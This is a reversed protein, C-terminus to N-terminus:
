EQSHVPKMLNAECLVGELSTGSAMRIYFARMLQLKKARTEQLLKENNMLKARLETLEKSEFLTEEVELQIGALFMDVKARLSSVADWAQRYSGAATRAQARLPATEARVKRVDELKKADYDAFAQIEAPSFTKTSLEFNRYAEQIPWEPRILKPIASYLDPDYHPRLVEMLQQAKSTFTMDPLTFVLQTKIEDAIFPIHKPKEIGLARLTVNADPDLELLRHLKKLSSVVRAVGANPHKADTHSLAAALFLSEEEETSDYFAPSFFRLEEWITKAELRYGLKDYHELIIRTAKKLDAEAGNLDIEMAEIQANLEQIRLAKENMARAARAMAPVVDSQISAELQSIIKHQTEVTRVLEKEQEHIKDLAQIEELSLSSTFPPKESAPLEDGAILFGPVFVGCAALVLSFNRTIAGNM